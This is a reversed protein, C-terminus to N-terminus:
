LVEEANVSSRREMINNNQKTKKRWKSSSHELHRVEMLASRHLHVFRLLATNEWIVSQRQASVQLKKVVM